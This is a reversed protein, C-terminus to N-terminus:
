KGSATRKIKPPEPITGAARTAIRNFTNRGASLAASFVAFFYSQYMFVAVNQMGTGFSFLGSLSAGWFGARLVCRYELFFICWGDEDPRHMKKM